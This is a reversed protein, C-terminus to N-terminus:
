TGPLKGDCELHHRDLEMNVPVKLILDFLGACLKGAYMYHQSDIEM